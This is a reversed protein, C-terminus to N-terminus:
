GGAWELRTLRTLALLERLIASANADAEDEQEGREPRSLALDTLAPLAAGVDQVQDLRVLQARLGQLSSCRCLPCRRRRRGCAVM